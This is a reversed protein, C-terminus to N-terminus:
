RHDHRKQQFPLERFVSVTLSRQSELLSLVWEMLPGHSHEICTETLAESCGQM